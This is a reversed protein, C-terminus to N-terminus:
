KFQVELNLCEPSKVIEDWKFEITVIKRDKSFVATKNSVTKVEKPFHYKVVYKSAELITKYKALFNADIKKFPQNTAITKRFFKKGDYLYNMKVGNELLVSLNGIRQIQQKKISKTLKQFSEMGEILQQLDTVSKFFTELSFLLQKKEQNIQIRMLFNESKRFKSQEEISLKAISDKKEELLQKFTFVSDITKVLKSSDKPMMAILSSGDIAFAYKGSGDQNIEIEETFVCSTLVVLPLLLCLFRKM